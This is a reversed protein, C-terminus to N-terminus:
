KLIKELRRCIKKEETLLQERIELNREKMQDDVFIELRRKETLEDLLQGFYEFMILCDKEASLAEDLKKLAKRTAEVIESIREDLKSIKKSNDTIEQLLGSVPRFERIIPLADKWIDMFKAAEGSIKGCDPCYGFWNNRGSMPNGGASHLFAKKGCEPCEPRWLGRGWIEVLARVSVAGGGVWAISLGCHPVMFSAVDEDAAIDGLREYLREYNLAIFRVLVDIDMETDKVEINRESTDVM